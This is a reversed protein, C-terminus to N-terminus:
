VDNQNFSYCLPDEGQTLLNIANIAFEDLLSREVEEVAEFYLFFLPISAMLVM